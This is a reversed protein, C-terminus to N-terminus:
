SFSWSWIWELHEMVQFSGGGLGPVKGLNKGPGSDNGPQGQFDYLGLFWCWSQCSCGQETCLGDALAVQNKEEWEVSTWRCVGWVRSCFIPIPKTHELEMECSPLFGLFCGWNKKETFNITEVNFSKRESPFYKTKLWMIIRYLQGSFSVM